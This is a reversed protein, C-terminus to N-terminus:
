FESGIKIQFKTSECFVEYRKNYIYGAIWIKYIDIFPFRFAGPAAGEVLHLTGTLELFHPLLQIQSGVALVLTIGM